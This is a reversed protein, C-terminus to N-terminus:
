KSASDAYKKELNINHFAGRNAKRAMSHNVILRATTIINRLELLDNSISDPYLEKLRKDILELYRMAYQLGRTTRTIGVYRTMLTQVKTKINVLQTVEHDEVRDRYNANSADPTIAVLGLLQRISRFSFEAFAVAELLSNSALRNAGHLGTHACEGLAYLNKISTRASIDVDIGGCLYHAAPIIPILDTTIDIGKERCQSYIKPFDNILQEPPLHTCDLFMCPYLSTKIENDIARAVVDRCALEGQLHYKFMFRDGNHNRLFAGYGRLAETILFKQSASGDEYFATPHFQIFEMNRISAGARHAIAIGDGTALKPNTSVKYVEGIGGTALVTIRSIFKNATKTKYDLIFAGYCTASESSPAKVNSDTILDIVTHHSLIVIGPLAKARKLLSVAIQYGTMDKHHVVRSQSHGGERGLIFDGNSHRDLDVGNQMLESLVSPGHCVVKEVVEEKCLGDGARLTDEIHSEFSDNRTDCVISVGGQAFTTNSELEDGKTVVLIKRQPFENSLKIALSLGAIGSGIILVDCIPM